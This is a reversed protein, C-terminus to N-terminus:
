NIKWHSMRDYSPTYISVTHTLHWLVGPDNGRCCFYCLGQQVAKVLNSHPDSSDLSALPNKVCLCMTCFKLLVQLFFLVSLPCPLLQGTNEQRPQLWEWYDSVSKKEEYKFYSSVVTLCDAWTAPCSLSLGRGHWTTKSSSCMFPCLDCTANCLFFLIAIHLLM